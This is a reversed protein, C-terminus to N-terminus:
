EDDTSKIFLQFKRCGVAFPLITHYKDKNNVM